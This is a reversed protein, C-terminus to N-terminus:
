AKDFSVKNNMKNLKANPTSHLFCDTNIPIYIFTTTFKTTATIYSLDTIISQRYKQCNKFSLYLVFSITNIIINM